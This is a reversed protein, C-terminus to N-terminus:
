SITPSNEHLSTWRLFRSKPPSIFLEPGYRYYSSSLKLLFANGSLMGLGIGVILLSLLVLSAFLGDSFTATSVSRFAGLHFIIYDIPSVQKPCNTGQSQALACGGDHNQMDTHMGFVGFIAVGVFSAALLTTFVVKM